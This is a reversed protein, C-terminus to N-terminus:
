TVPTTTNSSTTVNTAGYVAIVEASPRLKFTNGTVWVKDPATPGGGAGVYVCDISNPNGTTDFANNTITIDHSSGIVLVHSAWNVPATFSDSFSNDRVTVFGSRDEIHIPEYRYGKFTNKEILAHQVNALGVGFGSGFPDATKKNDLFRSRTVSVNTIAGEPANLELDDAHNRTFTSSDVRFGDTTSRTSNAQFIGYEVNQITTNVVAVDKIVDDSGGGLAIGHFVRTGYVDKRGDIVVNDFTLNTSPGIHVMVGSIDTARVLRVGQLSPSTGSVRILERYVSPQDSDFSLTSLSSAGRITVPGTLNTSPASETQVIRCTAPPVVVVGGGKSSVDSLAAQLAPQDNHQGDCTAGYATLLVTSGNNPSAPAAAPSMGCGMLALSIPLLGIVLALNKLPLYTRSPGV